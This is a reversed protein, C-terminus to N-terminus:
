RNAEKKDYFKNFQKDLCLHNQVPLRKQNKDNSKNKPYKQLVNKRYSFM